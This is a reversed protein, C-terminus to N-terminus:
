AKEQGPINIFYNSLGPPVLHSQSYSSFPVCICAIPNPKFGFNREMGIETPVMRNNCM